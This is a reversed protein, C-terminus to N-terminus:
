GVDNEVELSRLVLFYCTTIMVGALDSTLGAHIDPPFFTRTRARGVGAFIAPGAEPGNPSNARSWTGELM